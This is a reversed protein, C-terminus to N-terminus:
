SLAAAAATSPATRQEVRGIALAAGSALAAAIVM